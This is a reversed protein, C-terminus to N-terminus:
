RNPNWKPLSVHGDLLAKLGTLPPAGPSVKTRMQLRHEADHQLHTMAHERGAQITAIVSASGLRELFLVRSGHAGRLRRAQRSFAQYVRSRIRRLAVDFSTRRALIPM